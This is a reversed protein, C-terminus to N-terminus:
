QDGIIHAIECNTFTKANGQINLLEANYLRGFEYKEIDWNYIMNIQLKGKLEEECENLSKYQGNVTCESPKLIYVDITKSTVATKIKNSCADMAITTDTLAGREDQVITLTQTDNLEINFNDLDSSSVETVLFYAAISGVSLISIFLILLITWSTLVIRKRFMQRNTYVVTIFIIIAFSLLALDVLGIMLPPIIPGLQNQTAVDVTMFNGAVTFVGNTTKDKITKGIDDLGSKGEPTTTYLYELEVNLEDYSKILDQCETISIPPNVHDNLNNYMEGLSNLNTVVTVDNQDISWKTKIILEESLEKKEILLYYNDTLNKDNLTEITKYKSELTTISAGLNDLEYYNLDNEIESTLTTISNYANNLQTDTILELTAKAENAENKYKTQLSEYNSKHQLYAEKNAYYFTRSQTNWFIETSIGEADEMADLTTKWDDIEDLVNELADMDYAVESCMRMCRENAPTSEKLCTAGIDDPLRLKSMKIEEAAETASNVAEELENLSTVINSEDINNVINFCDEMTQDLALLTTRYTVMENALRPVQDYPIKKGDMKISTSLAVDYCSDYDDCVNLDTEGRYGVFGISHLCSYEPRHGIFNYSSYTYPADRSEAFDNLLEKINTFNFDQDGIADQLYYRRITKNIVSENNVLEDNKLLFTYDDEISIIKYNINDIQFSTEKVNTMTEDDYLYNSTYFGNVLGLILILGLLLKVEPRM